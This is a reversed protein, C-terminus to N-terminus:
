PAFRAVSFWFDLDAAAGAADFTSVTFTTTSVVNVAIRGGALGQLTAMVAAETQLNIGTDLTLLYAGIASRAVSVCGRQGRFATAAADGDVNGCAVVGYVTNALTSM